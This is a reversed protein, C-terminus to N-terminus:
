KPAAPVLDDFNLPPRAKPYVQYVRAYCGAAETASHAHGQCEQIWRWREPGFQKIGGAETLEEWAPDEGALGLRLIERDSLFRVSSSEVRDMERFLDDSAAIEALYSKVAGRLADYKNRAEQASLGGFYNPDFYPRHVGIRAGPLVVRDVGAALILVCASACVKGDGVFTYLFHARITRGIAEAESIDGGVSDLEV